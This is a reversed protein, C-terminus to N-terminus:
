RDNQTLSYVAEATRLAAGEAAVETARYAGLAAIVSPAASHGGPVLRPTQPNSDVLCRLPESSERLTAIDALLVPRTEGGRLQYLGSDRPDIFTVYGGELIELPEKIAGTFSYRIGEVRVPDFYNPTYFDSVPVGNVPYWQTQCPDCIELLYNVREDPFGARAAAILRNGYPDALMELTEHSMTTSWMDSWEVLAFPQRTFENLHVGQLEDRDFYDILSTAAERGIAFELRGALDDPDSFLVVLHYDSPVTTLDAFADVTAPLGWVPTFDRAVQKQVAAAVQLLESTSVRNTLSVLAVHDTLPVPVGKRTRSVAQGGLAM